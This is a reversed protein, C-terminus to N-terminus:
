SNIVDKLEENRNRMDPGGELLSKLNVMYFLWGKTCGVHFNVKSTEDTPIEEQMVELVSNGMEQKVRVTVNGAKGFSFKLYLPGLQLVTGREVVEDPWGHWMWEYSDGAQVPETRDRVTKDPRRFEAKRLFWQELCDQSIWYSFITQPDASVPLRLVFRSWDYLQM